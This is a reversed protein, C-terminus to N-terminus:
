FPLFGMLISGLAEGVGGFDKNLGQRYEISFTLPVYNLLQSSLRLGGGISPITESRPWFHSGELFAIGYFEKFFAPNTGLGRYIKFISHHYDLSGFASARTYFVFGPYGRIKIEDLSPPDNELMFFSTTGDLVVNSLLHQSGHSVASGAISIKVSSRDSIKLGTRDRLLFKWVPKEDQFLHVRGAGYAMYERGRGSLTPAIDYPTFGLGLSFKPYFSSKAVPDSTQSPIFSSDRETFLSLMPTLTSTNSRFPFSITSGVQLSRDFQLPNGSGINDSFTYSYTQLDITPGLSRNAYYTMWDWEKLANDRLAYVLYEHRQTTDFGAVSGGYYTRMEGGTNQFFLFPSWARPWLSPFVTYDDTKPLASSKQNSPLYETKIKPAPPPDVRSPSAGTRDKVADVEAMDWGETSFVSAYLQNKPGFSPLWIGTIMNTVPVPHNNNELRYLNDVGTIDSIFNLQGNRDFAPFRNFYGNSVLTRTTGRGLDLEMLDEKAQDAPHISFVVTRGDPSFKPNSVRGLISPMYLTRIEDLKLGDPTEKLKGSALGTVAQKTLTFVLTTGDPSIDPDRARLMESLWSSKDKEINYVALDSYLYYSSSRKLNSYVINKSDATFVLSIGSRTYAIRKNENTALNKLYIGSGLGKEGSRYAMWKGDPSFAAGGALNGKNTIKKFRTVPHSNIVEIQKQVRSKTEELWEAWYQYWDKGTVNEANGNIFFPIRGGSRLSLEGPTQEGTKNQPDKIAQNILEYGFIYPTEGYPFEPNRGGLKDLTIFRSDGLVGDKVASRLIMEFYPSRGRGATSFKTESYVAMGEHMWEPWLSNPRIADGFIWRMVEMLDTTPDMNLMHTYEHIVLSWLWDDDYATSFWNDPPTVQLIMGFRLAASSLGNASDENDIVLVDTKTRPEWKLYPSLLQHTKELYDATRGAIPQLEEPFIVRFHPTKITKWNWFPSLGFQNGLTVAFSTPTIALFALLLIFFRRM